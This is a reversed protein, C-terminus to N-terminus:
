NEDVSDSYCSKKKKLRILHGYRNSLLKIDFYQLM